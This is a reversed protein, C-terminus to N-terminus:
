CRRKQSRCNKQTEQLM